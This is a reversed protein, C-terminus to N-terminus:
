HSMGRVYNAIMKGPVTQKYISGGEHVKTVTKNHWSCKCELLQLLIANDSKYIHPLIKKVLLLFCIIFSSDLNGKLKKPVTIWMFDEMNSKDYGCQYKSIM